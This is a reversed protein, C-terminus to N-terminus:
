AQNKKMEEVKKSLISIKKSLSDVDAKTPINLRALIEEVRKGLEDEARELRKKRKEMIEQVLIRGDKEAIEGREMLKNVFDEIEDQALAMVGVGALLVNRALNFMPKRRRPEEIEAQHTIKGAM